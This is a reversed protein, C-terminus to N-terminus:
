CLFYGFRPLGSVLGCNVFSVGFLFGWPFGVILLDFCSLLFDSFFGLDCIWFNFKVGLLDWCLGVGRWFSVFCCRLYVVAVLHLVFGCDVFLVADCYLM